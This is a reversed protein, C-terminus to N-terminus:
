RKITRMLLMKIEFSRKRGMLNARDILSSPERSRDQCYVLRIMLFHSFFDMWVTSKLRGRYSPRTCLPNKSMRTVNTLDYSYTKGNGENRYRWRNKEDGQSLEVKKRCLYKDNIHHLLKPFNSWQLLLLYLSYQM